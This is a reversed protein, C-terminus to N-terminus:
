LNLNFLKSIKEVDKLGPSIEFKSNLDLGFLMQNDDFIKINNINDLSLGGSLFFPKDYVKNNLVKWDFTKGSGGYNDSKYDFLLYDVSDLDMKISELDEENRILYSKIIKIGKKKLKICYDSGENGHLQVHSFKYTELVSLVKDIEENVFVAVKNNINKIFNHDPNNLIYRPSKDYFIFGFYDIPYKKLESFNQEDTIGCVKIMYNNIM